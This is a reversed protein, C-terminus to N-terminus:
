RSAVELAAGHMRSTAELGFSGGPQRVAEEMSDEHHWSNKELGGGNSAEPYRWTLV